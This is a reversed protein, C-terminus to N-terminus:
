NWAILYRVKGSLDRHIQTHQLFEQAIEKVQQGQTEGMELILCGTPTLHQAAQPILHRYGSLGDPGGDLALLPDYTKVEEELLPIDETPIYPPNSVILDFFTSKEIMDMWPGALFATRETLRLHAANKQATALASEQLDTGVGWATPFEQLLSLLLCGSGTGVDLIAQPPPKQTFFSLALEILGETEPRPDLTVSSLFFNEKWFGRVGLIRSLPERKLRRQLIAEIKEVQQASLPPSAPSLHNFFLLPTWDLAALILHQAEREEQLGGKQLRHNVHPLLDSLNNKNM